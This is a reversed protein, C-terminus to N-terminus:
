YPCRGGLSHGPGGRDPNNRRDSESSGPLNQLGKVVNDWGITLDVVFYASSVIAGAPGGFTGVASMGIDLDM